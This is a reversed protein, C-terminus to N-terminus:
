GTLGTETAGTLYRHEGISAWIWSLMPRLAARWAPTTHRGYRVTLFAVPQRKAVENRFADAKRYDGADGTGAMLWFRPLPQRPNRVLRAPDNAAVRSRDGDFIKRLVSTTVTPEFYGDMIAASQFTGSHRLSLNAACFGGDSLGGIAWNKGPPAVRVRATVDAPVDQALYTEDAAGHVADLCEQGHTGGFTRPIVAVIPGIRGGTIEQDLIKKIALGDVWSTPDGPDGHLLEVVPFRATAFAPDHYQPPLYIFGRREIHSRAGPLALAVLTGQGRYPAAVLVVHRGTSGLPGALHGIGAADASTAGSGTMASYLGDWSTFYDYYRNVVWVGSLMGLALACVGSAAIVVLLRTRAFLYIFGAFGGILLVLFPYGDPGLTVASM